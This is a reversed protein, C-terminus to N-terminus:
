KKHFNLPRGLLPQRKRQDISKIKKRHLEYSREQEYYIQPNTNIYRVGNVDHKFM